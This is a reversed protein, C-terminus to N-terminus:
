QQFSKETVGLIVKHFTRSHFLIAALYGSPLLEFLAEIAKLTHNGEM